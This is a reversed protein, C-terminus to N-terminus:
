KGLNWLSYNISFKHWYHFYINLLIQQYWICDIGWFCRNCIKNVDHYFLLVTVYICNPSGKTSGNEIECLWCFTLPSIFTVVHPTSFVGNSVVCVCSPWTNCHIRLWRQTTRSLQVRLQRLVHLSGARNCSHCHVQLEVFLPDGDWVCGEQFTWLWHHIAAQLLFECVAVTVFGGQAARDGETLLTLSSHHILVLLCRPLLHHAERMPVTGRVTPTIIGSPDNCHCQLQWM